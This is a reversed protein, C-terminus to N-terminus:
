HKQIDANRSTRLNKRIHTKHNKARLKTQSRFNQISVTNEKLRLWAPMTNPSKSYIILSIQGVFISLNALIKRKQSLNSKHRLM